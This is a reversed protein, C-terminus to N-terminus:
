HSSSRSRGFNSLQNNKATDGRRRKATETAGNHNRSRRAAVKQEFSNKAAKPPDQRRPHENQFRSQNVCQTAENRQGNQHEFLRAPFHGTKVCWAEM